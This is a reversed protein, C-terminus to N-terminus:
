QAHKLPHGVSGLFSLVTSCSSPVAWLHQWCSWRWNDLANSEFCLVVHKLSNKFLFFIYASVPDPSLSMLTSPNTFCGPVTQNARGNSTRVCRLWLLISSIVVHQLTRSIQKTESVEIHGPLWRVNHIQKTSDKVCFEHQNLAPDTWFHRSVTSVIFFCLFTVSTLVSQGGGGTSSSVVCHILVFSFMRQFRIKTFSWNSGVNTHRMVCNWCISCLKM